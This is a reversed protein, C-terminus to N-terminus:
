AREARRRFTLDPLCGHTRASLQHALIWKCPSESHTEAWWLRPVTCAQPSVLVSFGEGQLTNINPPCVMYSTQSSRFGIRYKLTASSYFQTHTDPTPPSPHLQTAIWSSKRYSILKLDPVLPTSFSCNLGTLLNHM